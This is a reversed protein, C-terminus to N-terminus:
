LTKYLNPNLPVDDVGNDIVVDVASGYDRVMQAYGEGYLAGYLSARSNDPNVSTFYIKLAEYIPLMHHPEPILSMEGIIYTASGATIVTGAYTRTLTLTTTSPVTAIEYWINDGANAATLQAIRIYRGIMGAGWTTGSGTVTTTVGATAVTVITGTTYDAVSLDKAVRRGNFTITNGASTPRPFLEIQGDYVFYHTPIDSTLTTVNLADWEARTSVRQPAYRYSGVTVYVSQPTRTYAPMQYAQQSAVTTKTYQKWLFDWDKASIIRKETANMLTDALTLVTSSANNCLDAFLNRRGTYSLM